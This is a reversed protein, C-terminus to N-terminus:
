KFVIIPIRIIKDEGKNVEGRGDKNSTALYVWQQDPDLRVVRLRGFEKAFHATLNKLNQGHIEATYLSEGRLGTFLLKGNLVEASAPAWTQSKGSEIVPLIMGERTQNGKITPWGYNKGKVILNVEDNGTDNGSPGHETAWLQGNKDWALGQPNRHGYSYIPNNFPNDTPISGDDKLRLIKGSLSQTDQADDQHSADGTAVYLLNDPGFAIRGGDHVASAPIKDIIIKKDNLKNNTEDLTFKEVQNFLGQNTKTTHYLYLWKNTKFQPHLALGLLGGEGVQTVNEVTIVKKDSPFIRVLKGPRETVLLSKDPLFVIEWPVELNEAITEITASNPETADSSSPASETSIDKVTLGSPVNSSTPAFIFHMVKDKLLLGGALFIAIVLLIPLAIKKM